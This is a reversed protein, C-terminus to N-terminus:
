KEEIIKGSVKGQLKIDETDLNVSIRAAQFSNDKEVVEADGVLDMISTKRNYNAFLAKCNKEKQVVSVNFKVILIESNEDYKAYDGKVTTNNENDILEVNGFFESVKKERDYELIDASFKLKDKENEGTVNGRAVINSFNKGSLEISESKITVDSTKVIANGSLVSVLNKSTGKGTMRESSFTIEDSFAQLCFYIFTLITFFKKRDIQIRKM